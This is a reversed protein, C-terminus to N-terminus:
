GHNDTRRNLPSAAVIVAAATLLALAPALSQVVSLILSVTM